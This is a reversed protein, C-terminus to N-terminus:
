ENFDFFNEALKSSESPFRWKLVDYIGEGKDNSFKSKLEQEFMKKRDVLKNIINLIEDPDNGDGKFAIAEVGFENKQVYVWKIKAGHHISEYQKELGLKVLLDNYMLCAKVQAPTGKVFQFPHRNEPNYNHVGDGSVFKVSTNKAIEVVDLTKIKERFDMVINDLEEKSSSTLLKRFFLDMFKRFSLPFSTRVIDIGRVEMRPEKLLAGEEHIIWQAYRKKALWFSSKSIVEQKAEFEHSTDVM